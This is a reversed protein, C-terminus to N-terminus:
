ELDATKGEEEAIGEGLPTLPQEEENRVSGKSNIM